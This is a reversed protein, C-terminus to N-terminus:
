RSGRLRAFGERWRAAQLATLEHLGALLAFAIALHHLLPTPHRM